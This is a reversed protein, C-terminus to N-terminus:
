QSGFPNLAPMEFGGNCGGFSPHCVINTGDPQEALLQGKLQVLASAACTPCHREIIDAQTWVTKTRKDFAAIPSTKPTEM